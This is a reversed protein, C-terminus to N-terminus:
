KHGLVLTIQTHTSHPSIQSASLRGDVVIGINKVGSFSKIKFISEKAPLVLEEQCLDCNRPLVVPLSQLGVKQGGTRHYDVVEYRESTM